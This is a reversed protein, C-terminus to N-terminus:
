QWNTFYTILQVQESKWSVTAIAKLTDPDLVGGTEVIDDNEDRFVQEFVVKRTFIGITEEGSLLTWEPPSGGTKGPYYSAGTSLNGLGDVEWDAGDRVNRVIEITEQAINVAQTYEKNLGAIKLSFSLLGLISVFAIALVFIVVLIEIVSIGKNSSHIQFM